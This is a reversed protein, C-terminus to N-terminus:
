GGNTILESVSKGECIADEMSMYKWAGCRGAPYINNQKLFDIITKVNHKYNHDYLVYGYKIDNTQQTMIKDEPRLIGAQILDNHIKKELGNGQLPKSDSYSVEVYVSSKGKPTVNDSFNMPFGLRFFSFKDEPYYIWHKDSVKERNIGLNLNFISIYKLGYFADKVKTPIKNVIIDKLEVLPITSVLHTFAATKGNNFCVTKSKLDLETVKHQTKINNIRPTFADAIQDIGGRKPYWFRSNYGLAKTKLSFAGNIVERIGVLPVYDKTWDPILQEPPVTWFKLNYPYMFYKTIGKGFKEKLWDSLTAEPRNKKRSKAKLIGLICRKIIAAPLGFTNAQFPYKTYVDRSYIWANRQHVDLVGPLLKNILKKVYETKFHLLHGDCDFVFGDIKRSCALGGIHGSKEYISYPVTYGNQLHYATSLGTLGAGLIVVKKSM